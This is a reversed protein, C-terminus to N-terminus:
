QGRSYINYAQGGGSLLSGFANLRATRFNSKAQKVEENGQTVLGMAQNFANRRLQDADQRAMNM